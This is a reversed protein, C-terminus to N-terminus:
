IKRWTAPHQHAWSTILGTFSQTYQSSTLVASTAKDQVTLSYRVCVVEGNTDPGVSTMLLQILHHPYMASLEKQLDRAIDFVPIDKQISTNYGDVIYNVIDSLLEKTSPLRPKSVGKNEGLEDLADMTRNQLVIADKLLCVISNNNTRVIASVDGTEQEIRKTKLNLDDIIDHLIDELKYGDPNDVAMLVKM